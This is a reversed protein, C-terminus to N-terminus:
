SCRQWPSGNYYFGFGHLDLKNGRRVFVRGEHWRKPHRDEGRVSRGIDVETIGVVEDRREVDFLADSRNIKDADSNRRLGSTPGVVNTIGVAAAADFDNHAANM